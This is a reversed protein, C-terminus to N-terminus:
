YDSNLNEQTQESVGGRLEPAIEHGTYIVFIYTFIGFFHLLWMGKGRMFFGHARLPLTVLFWPPCPKSLFVSKYINTLNYLM